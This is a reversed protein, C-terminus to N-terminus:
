LLGPNRRWLSFSLAAAFSVWAWYPLLLLAAGRHLWWFRMVTAGILLWLVGIEVAALAGRQWAFFLWTWAANFVLQVAFLMFAGRAAATGHRRWVLWVAVAMLAYLLSWVPGFASAPPAWAPRDLQAYFSSANISALAGIGAAAFCLAFALLLALSQRAASPAATRAPSSM